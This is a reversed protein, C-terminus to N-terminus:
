TAPPANLAMLERLMKQIAAKRMRQELYEQEREEGLVNLRSFTYERQLKVSRLPVLVKGAADTVEFDLSYDLLYASVRGLTDVVLVQPAFYENSLTLVPVGPADTLRAGLNYFARRAEQLLPPHRLPSGAVVVHLTTLSPPLRGEPGPFHFGCGALTSLMWAGLVLLSLSRM